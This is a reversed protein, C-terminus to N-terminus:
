GAGTLIGSISLDKLGCICHKGNSPGGFAILVAANNVLVDIRGFQDVAAQILQGVSQEDTVDCRVALAEQGQAKIEKVTEYITGPLQRNEVETRAAVVVHAGEKAFGLAIARGLGRSGGTVIAVKGKLKVKNEGWLKLCHIL